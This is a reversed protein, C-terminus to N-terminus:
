RAFIFLCPFAASATKSRYCSTEACHVRYLRYADEFDKSALFATLDNDDPHNNM